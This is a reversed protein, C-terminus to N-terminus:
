FVQRCLPCNNKVAFWGRICSDHFVNSCPLVIVSETMEFNNLCINCEVPKPEPIESYVSTQLRNVFELSAPEEEMIQSREFIANRVDQYLDREPVRYRRFTYYATKEEEPFAKRAYAIVNPREELVREAELAARQHPPEVFSPAEM